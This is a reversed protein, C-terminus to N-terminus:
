GGVSVSHRTEDCDDVVVIEVTGDNIQFGAAAIQADLAALAENQVRQHTEPRWQTRDEMLYVSYWSYEKVYERLAQWYALEASQLRNLCNDRKKKAEEWSKRIEKLRKEIFERRGASKEAADARDLAGRPTNNKNVIVAEAERISSFGMNNAQKLTLKSADNKVAQVYDSYNRLEQARKDLQAQNPLARYEEILAESSNKLAKMRASQAIICKQTNRWFRQADEARELEPATERNVNIQDASLRRGGGGTEYDEEFQDADLLLKDYDYGEVASDFEAIAENRKRVAEAITQVDGEMNKVAKAYQAMFEGMGPVKEAVSGLMDLYDSFAEFAKLSDNQGEAAKDLFNSVKEMQAIMEEAKTIREANKKIGGLVEGLGAFRDGRVTDLKEVLGTIDKTEIKQGNEIKLKLSELTLLADFSDSVTKVHKNGTLDAVTESVSKLDSTTIAEGSASKVGIDALNRGFKAAANFSKLDKSETGLNALLENSSDVAKLAGDLKELGTSEASVAATAGATFKKASDPVKDLAVDVQKTRRKTKSKAKSSSCSASAPSDFMADNVTDRVVLHKNSDDMRVHNRDEKRKYDAKKRDKLDVNVQARHNRIIAKKGGGSQAAANCAVTVIAQGPVASLTSDGWDFGTLANLTNENLDGCGKRLNNDDPNRIFVETDFGGGAEEPNATTEGLTVDASPKAGALDPKKFTHVSCAITEAAESLLKCAKDVLEEAVTSGTDQPYGADIPEGTPITLGALPEPVAGGSGTTPRNAPVIIEIDVERTLRKGNLAKSTASVVAFYRGPQTGEPVVILLGRGYARNNTPLKLLQSSGNGGVLGVTIGGSPERMTAALRVSSNWRDGWVGIETERGYYANEGGAPIVIKEETAFLDFNPPDQLHAYQPDAVVTVNVRAGQTVTKEGKLPVGVYHSNYTGLVSVTYEGPPTEPSATITLRTREVSEGEPDPDRTVLWRPNDYVDNQQWGGGSFAASLGNGRGGIGHELQIMAENNKKFTTLVTTDGSEGQKIILRGPNIRVGFEPPEKITLTYSAVREVPRGDKNGTVTVTVTYEGPSVTQRPSSDISLVQNNPTFTNGDAGRISPELGAVPPDVTIDVSVEGEFDDRNKLIIQNTNTQHHTIETNRDFVVIGFDKAHVLTPALIAAVVAWRAVRKTGFRLRHM